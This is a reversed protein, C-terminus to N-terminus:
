LSYVQEAKGQVMMEAWEVGQMLSHDMNGVEYKWGGFRGRSYIDAAELYPQITVKKILGCSFFFKFSTILRTSFWCSSVDSESIRNHSHFDP